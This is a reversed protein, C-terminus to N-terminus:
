IRVTYRFDWRDGRRIAISSEIERGRMDYGIRHIAFAPSGVEIRLLEAQEQNIV